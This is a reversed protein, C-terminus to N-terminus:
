FRLSNEQALSIHGSHFVSLKVHQFRPALLPLWVVSVQGRSLVGRSRLVHCPQAERHVVSLLGVEIWYKYSVRALKEHGTKLKRPTENM